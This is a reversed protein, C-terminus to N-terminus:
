GTVIVRYQSATPPSTVRVVVNNTDLAEVDAWVFEWPDSNSRIQVHVDRTGLAHNITFETLVGNGIDTAYKRVVTAPLDSEAITGWAPAASDSGDGTQVLFRKAAATNGPLRVDNTGDNYVLDGLTTLPSLADFAAQATTEGTGGFAIDVPTAEWAGTTVTGVTVISTQGAYTAAIDVSDANVTIRDATGIVDITNGTKITGAGGIVTEGADESWVLETTGVVIDENTILIWRSDAHATGEEIPITSGSTLTGAVGDDARSAAGAAPVVYIGNEEANTQSKVLVRDGTSLVVGDITQGDALDTALDVDGTTAVRASQKWDRGAALADAYAKNVADTGGTPTDLGTVRAATIENASFNGSADRLVGTLADDASSFPYVFFSADGDTWKPMESSTDYWVRGPSFYTVPDVALNQLLYNLIENGTMDLPSLVPQM